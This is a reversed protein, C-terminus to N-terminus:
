TIVVVADYKCLGKHFLCNAKLIYHHQYHCCIQKSMPKKKKLLTM